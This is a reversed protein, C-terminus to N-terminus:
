TRRTTCGIVDYQEISVLEVGVETARDHIAAHSVASANMHEENDFVLMSMAKTPPSSLLM